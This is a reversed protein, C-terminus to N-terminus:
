FRFIGEVLSLKRIIDSLAVQKGPNAGMYVRAMLTKAENLDNSYFYLPFLHRSPLGIQVRYESRRDHWERYCSNTFILKRKPNISITLRRLSFM